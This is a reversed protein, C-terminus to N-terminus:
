RIINIITEPNISKEDAIHFDKTNLGSATTAGDLDVFTISNIAINGRYKKKKLAGRNKRSLFLEFMNDIRDAIDM